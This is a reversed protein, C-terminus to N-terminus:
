SGALRAPATRRQGAPQDAQGRAELEPSDEADCNQREGWSKTAASWANPKRDSHWNRAKEREHHAAVEMRELEMPGHRFAWCPEQDAVPM